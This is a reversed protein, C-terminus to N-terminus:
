LGLVEKFYKKDEEKLLKGLLEKQKAEKNAYGLNESVYKQFEEVAKEGTLETNQRRTEREVRASNINKVGGKIHNIVRGLIKVANPDSTLVEYFKEEETGKLAEKLLNCNAKYAKKEEYTLNKILTEKIAEPSQSQVEQEIMLGLIGEVQEQTLGLESYKATMKDLTKINDENLNLNEKLSSLDYAGFKYEEEFEMEDPNFGKNEIQEEQHGTNDQLDLNEDAVDLNVNQEQIELNDNDM